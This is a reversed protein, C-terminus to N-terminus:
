LFIVRKLVRPHTGADIKGFTQCVPLPQVRLDRRSGLANRRLDGAHWLDFRVAESRPVVPQADTGCGSRRWLQVLARYPESRRRDQSGGQTQGGSSQSNWVRAKAPEDSTRRLGDFLICCRGLRFAPYHSGYVLM